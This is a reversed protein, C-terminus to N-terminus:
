PRVFSKNKTIFSKKMAIITSKSSYNYYLM